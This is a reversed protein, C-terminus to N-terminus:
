EEKAVPSVFCWHECCLQLVLPCFASSVFLDEL